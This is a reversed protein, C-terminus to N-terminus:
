LNSYVLQSGNRQANALGKRISEILDNETVVSGTINVTIGGMTGLRDLPIVAEPGAEGIMALTPGSVIGGSAMAPIGYQGGLGSFPSYNNMTMAGYPTIAYTGTNTSKFGLTLNKIQLLLNLATRLDRTDVIIRMVNNTVANKTLGVQEAFRALELKGANVDRTFEEMNVSGSAMAELWKTEFADINEKIRAIELDLNLAGTFTDWASKVQDLETEMADLETTIVNMPDQAAAMAAYGDRWAAAMQETVMVNRGLYKNLDDATFTATGMVEGLQALLEVAKQLVPLLQRAVNIAFDEAVDRLEEMAAQFDKARQTDEKSFVKTQSVSALAAKLKASGEGVLRSLEMWGRGLLQTAAKARLAPDQIGRLADIVNFFTQQVDVAGSSTRAIEAGILEFGEAGDAAARNLKNLATQLSNSEIGMDGMVEIFRSAQETTTGTASSFKDVALGLRMFDGIAKGVFATVAGAAAAGFAIANKKALDFAAGSAVRFKAMAGDAVKLDYSLKKFGMLAKNIGAEDFDSIIPVRIAM